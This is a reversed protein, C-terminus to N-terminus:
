DACIAYRYQSFPNMSPRLHVQECFIHGSKVLTDLAWEAEGRSRGLALVVESQRLWRSPNAKFYGLAASVAGGPHLAAAPTQM